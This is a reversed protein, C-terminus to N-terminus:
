IVTDDPISTNKPIVVVGDRIYFNEGEGEEADYRGGYSRCGSLIILVAAVAVLWSFRHMTVYFRIESTTLHCIPYYGVSSNFSRRM